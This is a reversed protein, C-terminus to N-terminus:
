FLFFLSSACNYVRCITMSHMSPLSIQHSGHRAKISGGIQVMFMINTRGEPSILVSYLNGLSPVWKCSSRSDWMSIYQHQARALVHLNAVLNWPIWVIHFHLVLHHLQILKFYISDHQEQHQPVHVPCACSMCVVTHCISCALVFLILFGWHSFTNQIKYFGSWVGSLFM